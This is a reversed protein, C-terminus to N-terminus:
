GPTPMSSPTILLRALKATASLRCSDMQIGTDILVSLVKIILREISIALYAKLAVTLYKTVVKPVSLFGSCFIIALLWAGNSLVKKLTTFFARVSEDNATIHDSNQALV